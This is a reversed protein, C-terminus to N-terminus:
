VDRTKGYIAKFADELKQLLSDIGAWYLSPNQGSLDRLEGTQSRLQESAEVFPALSPSDFLGSYGLLLLTYISQSVNNRAQRLTRNMAGRSIGGERRLVQAMEERKLAKNAIDHGLQDMLLTEFQAKSLCSRDLLKAVIPDQLLTSM